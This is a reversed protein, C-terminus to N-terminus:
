APRAPLDGRGRDGASGGAMLMAILNRPVRRGYAAYRLEESILDEGFAMQFAFQFGSGAASAGGYFSGYPNTMSYRALITEAQKALKIIQEHIKEIKKLNKEAEEKSKFKEFKLKYFAKGEYM